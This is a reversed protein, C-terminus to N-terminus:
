RCSRIKSSGSEELEPRQTPLVFLVANWSGVEAERRVPRPRRGFGHTLM